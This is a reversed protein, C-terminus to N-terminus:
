IVRRLEAPSVKHINGAADVIEAFDGEPEFVMRRFVFRGRGRKVHMGSFVDQGSLNIMFAENM